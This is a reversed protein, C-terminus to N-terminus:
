SYIIKDSLTKMVGDSPNTIIKNISYMLIILIITIIIIKHIDSVNCWNIFVSHIILYIGGLILSYCIMILLSKSIINIMECYSKIFVIGLIISIIGVILMFNCKDIQLQEHVILDYIESFLYPYLLAIPIIILLANKSLELNIACSM